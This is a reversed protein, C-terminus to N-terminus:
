GGFIEIKKTLHKFLLKGSISIILVWFIQFLLAFLIDYGQIKGLYVQIPIFIIGKFPLVDALNKVFLPFFSLPVLGGSLIGSVFNNVQICSENNKLSFASIGIIFSVGAGILFGLHLTIFFILITPLSPISLGLLFVSFLFLPIGSALFSFLNRAYCLLIHYGQYDFPFLLDLGVNGNMMHTQIRREIFSFGLFTTIISVLAVYSILAKFDFGGIDTRAQYVCRWLFYQIGIFVLGSVCTILIDTPYAAVDKLGIFIIKKIKNVRKM